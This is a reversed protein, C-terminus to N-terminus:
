DEADRLWPYDFDPAWPPAKEPHPVGGRGMHTMAEADHKAAQRLFEEDPDQNSSVVVASSGGPGVSQIAVTGQPDVQKRLQATMEDTGVVWCPEHWWHEAESNASTDAITLRLDQEPDVPKACVTCFAQRNRAAASMIKKLM